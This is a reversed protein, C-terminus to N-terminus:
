DKKNMNNAVFDKSINGLCLLYPKIESDKAILINKHYVIYIIYKQPILLYFVTAEM